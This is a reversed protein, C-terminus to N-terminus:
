QKKRNLIPNINCKGPPSYKFHTLEYDNRSQMQIDFKELFKVLKLWLDYNDGSCVGLALTMMELEDLSLDIESEKKIIQEFKLTAM